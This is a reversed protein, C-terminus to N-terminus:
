SEAPKDDEDAKQDKQKKGGRPKTLSVAMTASQHYDDRVQVADNIMDVLEAEKEETDLGSPDEKLTDAIPKLKFYTEELKKTHETVSERLKQQHKLNAMKIPLIKAETLDKLLKPVMWELAKIPDDLPMEKAAKKKPDPRKQTEPTVTPTPGAKRLKSFNTLDLGNMLKKAGESGPNMKATSAIKNKEKTEEEDRRGLDTTVYFTKLGPTDPHDQVLGQAEKTAIISDAADKDGGHLAIIQARTKWRM